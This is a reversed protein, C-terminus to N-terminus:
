PRHDFEIHIHENPTGEAELVVDFQDGLRQKLVNLIAIKESKTSVHHTRIDIAYGHYHLSGHTHVGGTGSTIEADYGAGDFTAVIIPWAIAIEPSIGWISVGSKISAAV